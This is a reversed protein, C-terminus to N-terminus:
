IDRRIGPGFGQGVSSLARDVVRGVGRRLGERTLMEEAISADNAKVIDVFLKDEEDVIQGWSEQAVGRWVSAIQEYTKDASYGPFLIERQEALEVELAEMAQPDNRLRGAWEQLLDKSWSRAFKPGLWRRVIQEVQLTNDALTDLPESTLDNVWTEIVPDLVGPAAPDALKAIQSYLYAQSWTGGTWRDALLEVLREPANRVGSEVLLRRVTDRNDGVKQQAGAPDSANEAIWAREGPTKSQWWSTTKLEAETVTRGELIAAVTLGLIEPDRLWPRIAAERDFNSVFHDFPHESTNALERSVGFVLVGESKWQDASLTRDVKWPNGPGFIAAVDSNNEIKWALPTGRGPIRYVVYWYNDPGKWIEAGGPIGFKGDPDSYAAGATVPEDPRQSPGFPNVPPAPPPAEQQGAGVRAPPRDVVDPRAPRLQSGGADFDGGGPAPDMEGWGPRSPNVGSEVLDGIEDDSWEHDEPLPLADIAAIRERIQRAEAEYEEAARISIDSGVRRRSRARRELDDAERDLDAVVERRTAENKRRLNARRRDVGPSGSPDTTAGAGRGGGSGTKNAM